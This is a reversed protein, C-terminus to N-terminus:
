RLCVKKERIVPAQGFIALAIFYCTKFLAKGLTGIALECTSVHMEIQHHTADLAELSPGM